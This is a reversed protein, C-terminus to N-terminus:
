THCRFSMKWHWVFPSPSKQRFFLQLACSSSPQSNHRGIAFLPTKEQDTNCVGQAIRSIHNIPSRVSRRPCLLNSFLESLYFIHWQLRWSLPLPTALRFMTWCFTMKETIQSFMSPDMVQQNHAGAAGPLRCISLTGSAGTTSPHLDLMWPYLLSISFRVPGILPSVM